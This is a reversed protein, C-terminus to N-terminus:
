QVCRRAAWQPSLTGRRGSPACRAQGGRQVAERDHTTHALEVRRSWNRALETRAHRRAHTGGHGYLKRRSTVGRVIEIRTLVLRM